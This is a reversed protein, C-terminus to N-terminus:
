FILYFFRRRGRKYDGIDFNQTPIVSNDIKNEIMSYHHNQSENILLSKSSNMEKLLKDNM